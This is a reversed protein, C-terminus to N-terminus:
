RAQPVGYAGGSVAYPTARRIVQYTGLKSLWTGDPQQIAAHRFEITAGDPSVVGFVVIKTGKSVSFDFPGKTPTKRGGYVSPDGEQALRFGGYIKNM